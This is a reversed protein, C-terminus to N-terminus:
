AGLASQSSEVAAGLEFLAEQYDDAVDLIEQEPDKLAPAASVYAVVKGLPEAVAAELGESEAVAQLGEAADSLDTTLEDLHTNIPAYEPEMDRLVLATVALNAYEIWAGLYWGLTYAAMEPGDETLAGLYAETCGNAWTEFSDPDTPMTLATQGAAEMAKAVQRVHYRTQPGQGALGQLQEQCMTLTVPGTWHSSCSM